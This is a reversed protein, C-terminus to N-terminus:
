VVDEALERPNEEDTEKNEAEAAKAEQERAYNSAYSLGYTAAVGVILIFIAWLWAGLISDTSPPTADSGPARGIPILAFTKSFAENLALAIMFSFVAVGLGALVVWLNFTPNPMRDYIKQLMALIAVSSTDSTSM